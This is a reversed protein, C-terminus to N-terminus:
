RICRRIDLKPNRCLDIVPFPRLNQQPDAPRDAELLCICSYASQYCACRLRGHNRHIRIHLVKVIDICGATQCCHVCVRVVGNHLCVTHEANDDILRLIVDPDSAVLHVLHLNRHLLNRLRYPAPRRIDTLKLDADSFLHDIQASAREILHEVKHAM